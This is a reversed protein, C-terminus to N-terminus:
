ARRRRVQAADRRRVGGGEQRRLGLGKGAAAALGRLGPWQRGAAARWGAEQCGRAYARIRPRRWRSRGAHDRECGKRRGRARHRGPHFLQGGGEATRGRLGADPRRVPVPRRRGAPRAPAARLHFREHRDGSSDPAAPLVARGCCGGRPGGVISFLYCGGAALIIAPSAPVNFHYSVLLGAVSSFLGLGAALPIQRAASLALLPGVRRAADDDGGGDAHGAGPLRGGPEGGGAGPLGHAGLRGRRRQRAPIGPGPM